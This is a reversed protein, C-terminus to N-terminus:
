RSAMLEYAVLVDDRRAQDLTLTETYAGDFSTFRLHTAGPQVGARDLLDALKCARGSSTTRGALRHRM